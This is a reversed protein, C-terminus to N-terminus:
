NGEDDGFERVDDMLRRLLNKEVIGAEEKVRRRSVEPIDPISDIFAELQRRDARPAGMSVPDATYLTVPAADLLEVPIEQGRADYCGRLKAAEVLLSKADKLRGTAASLDAWKELREAYLNAWARPQVPDDSYFFNLSDAYVRRAMWDSLGYAESKLLRIIGAKTSVHEGGPLLTRARLGRVMEMLSFYQREAPSLCDLSGTKLIRDIKHSDVAEFDIRSPKDPLNMM